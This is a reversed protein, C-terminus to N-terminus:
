TRYRESAVIRGDVHHLVALGGKRLHTDGPHPGSRQEVLREILEPLVKGHSCVLAPEGADVLKSTLALTAPPDYDTETLLRDTGIKLLERAAYPVLTQVCRKSPSSLLTAPRYGYLVEALARSQEEGEKDIPRLDDDGTWEEREGASAHRVLVLPTTELPADLMGALMGADVEYSMRARAEALPLWELGDVEDSPLEAVQAVARAAWYDVRKPRGDKMYHVTPLRRGLVIGLGTEEAVERLAAAIMHEGPLLKGKPLSWDDRRPRHIVAIEPDDGAGRWVVAGAARILMDPDTM